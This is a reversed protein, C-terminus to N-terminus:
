CHGVAPVTPTVKFPSGPHHRVMSQAPIPAPATAYAMAMIVILRRNAEMAGQLLDANRQAAERVSQNLSLLEGLAPELTRLAGTDKLEQLKGAYIFSLRHKAEAFGTPAGHKMSVLAAAEETLMDLLVRAVGITEGIIRRKISESTM